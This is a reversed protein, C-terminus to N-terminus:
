DRRPSVTVKGDSGGSQRMLRDVSRDIDDRLSNFDDFTIEGELYARFAPAVLWNRISRQVADSAEGTVFRLTAGNSVRARAAAVSVGPTEAIRDWFNDITREEVRASLPRPDVYVPLIASTVYDSQAQSYVGSAVAEEMIVAIRAHARDRLASEDAQAPAATLASAALLAVMLAVLLRASRKM